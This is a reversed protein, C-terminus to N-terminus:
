RCHVCASVLLPVHLELILVCAVESLAGTLGTIQDNLQRDFDQHLIISDVATALKSGQMNLQVPGNVFKM